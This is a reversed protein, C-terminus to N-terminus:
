TKKQNQEMSLNASQKSIQTKSEEATETSNTNTISTVMRQGSLETKTQTHSAVMSHSRKKPTDVSIQNKDLTSIKKQFAIPTTFEKANMMLANM